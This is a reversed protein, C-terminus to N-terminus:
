RTPRVQPRNLAFAAMIMRRAVVKPDKVWLAAEMGLAPYIETIQVVDVRGNPAAENSTSLQAPLKAQVGLQKAICEGTSCL